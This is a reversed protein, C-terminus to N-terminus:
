LAATAAAIQEGLRRVQDTKEEVSALDRPLPIVLHEFGLSRARSVSRPSVPDNFRVYFEFGTTDRGVDALRRFINERYSAAEELPCSPGYWGDALRAARALAPNSVGGVIISPPLSPSPSMQVEKFSYWRGFHSVPRGTWLKRMIEVIEDTRSGRGEFKEGVAEFEEQMWGTGIGLMVRGGSLDQATAVMKATAFPNRLPLVYVGTALKIRHTLAALHAITVWVDALPTDQEYGPDGSPHYPYVKAFATPTVLHEALWIAEFGAAEAAVTAPAYHVIPFGFLMLSFKM